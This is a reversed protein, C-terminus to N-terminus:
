DPRGVSTSFSASPPSPALATKASQAAYAKATFTQPKSFGDGHKAPTPQVATCRSKGSLSHNGVADFFVDYRQGSKTFDERTYDIVRDAGISGVM